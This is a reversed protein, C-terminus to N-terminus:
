KKKKKTGCDKEEVVDFSEEEEKPEEEKQTFKEIKERLDTLKSIQALNEALLMGMLILFVGFVVVLCLLQDLKLEVVTDPSASGHRMFRNLEEDTSASLHAFLKRYDM